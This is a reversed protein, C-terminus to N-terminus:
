RRESRPLPEAAEVHLSADRLATNMFVVKWSVRKLPLSLLRYDSEQASVERNHLFASGAKRMKSKLDDRSEEVLKKLLESM